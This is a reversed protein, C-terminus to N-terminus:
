RGGLLLLGLLWPFFRERHMSSKIEQRADKAYVGAFGLALHRLVWVEDRSSNDNTRQRLM